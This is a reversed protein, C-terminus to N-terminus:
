PSTSRLRWPGRLLMASLLLGAVTAVSMWMGIVFGRPRYVLRIDHEGQPVYLGLLTHNAYRLPARKGDIFARWGNWATQSIVIWGGGTMSAHLEMANRTYKTVRVSGPGNVQEHPYEARAEIWSMEGFDKASKMHEFTAERTNGVYVRRPVFARGLPRMHEFLFAGPQRAIKRWGEPVPTDDTVFAYRVNLMPLFPSTLDEARNYWTGQEASWLEVFSKMRELRMPQYARVDELGYLTATNPTFTFWLGVIRYPETTKAMQEFLPVPPYFARAPLTPYYNGDEVARQAVILMLLLVPATRARATAAILAVLLAGGILVIAHNRIFEPSLELARMRDWANAVLLGLIAALILSTLVLGRRDLSEAGLAALIALGVLSAMLLRTNLAIDFLPVKAIIDAFPAMEVGFTLGIFLFVLAMRKIRARSRWAGFVALALAASGVYQSEVPADFPAKENPWEQEPAGFIFPILHAELRAVAREYPVSRDIKAFYERRMRHEFTQPLAEIVPLMYIATLLLALAGASVALVTARVFNRGRAIWLEGAAWVMGLAVIHLASEPHGNLLMMVFGFTLIAAARISRERIVRRVGILVLPFWVVTATIVWELWHVLFTSFMWAAAGILAPLEDRGLERLFAFMILGGLFFTMAAIYTLSTSLPLLFSLLFLPEYPTPQAAATLIDGAFLAPNWLAAEGRAYSERVAHKWPINLCYVDSLLANHIGDIGYDKAIGKMPEAAFPLDIPAYVRNTLLAKGTFTLPLLILVLAAFRSVPTILRHVLWACLLATLFYLLAAM